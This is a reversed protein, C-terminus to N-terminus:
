DKKFINQEDLKDELYSLIEDLSHRRSRACSRAPRDCIFCTREPYGLDERSISGEQTEVDIDYLRGLGDKEELDVMARKVEEGPRELLIYGEPGTKLNMAHDQIVQGGLRDKVRNWGIEFLRQIYPNNKVPGPINLKFCVVVGEESQSLLQAIRDMREERNELVEDLSPEEGKAFYKLM